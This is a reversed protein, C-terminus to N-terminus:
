VLGSLRRDEEELTNAAQVLFSSMGDLGEITQTVGNNFETYSSEFAKSASDTVFGSQVLDDVQAKLQSLQTVIEEHGSTLKQAVERMRGYSVNMDSM